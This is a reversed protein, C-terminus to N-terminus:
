REWRADDDDDDDDHDPAFDMWCVCDDPHTGCRECPMSPGEEPPHDIAYRIATDIPCMPSHDRSYRMGCGPCYGTTAEDFASM